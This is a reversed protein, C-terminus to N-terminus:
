PTLFRLTTIENPRLRVPIRGNEDVTATALPEENLNVIEVHRHPERLRVRGRVSKDSINYVRVIVGKGDAAPKVASVVLRPSSVEVLTGAVPLVGEGSALTARLPRAFRHAELFASEWGGEHPVIAYEFVHRGPCQAGPTEVTPGAPGKRTAIDPRSLWGVCRLLTLVLVVGDDGPLAEYEPLGRNALLLGRVGDNVDVFTKQPHTGVPQESWTDDAEPIAIPRTVVGFHQEAHNVDTQVGTPFHARLLHDQAQNDFETRFDIRSVGPYLRVLCRTDCKVRRRSRTQRNKTLSAPLLYTSTIELTSRARGNELVRIRPPAAPRDIVTDPSPAFYNYEDGRDGVDILRNLGRLIRGTAKDRVTISGDDPDASIVFFENEISVAVPKKSEGEPPGRVIRFAKYGHGPVNPAVLGAELTQQRAFPLPPSAPPPSVIQCPHRRGTADIVALPVHGDDNLPWDFTVFDARTGATPNFVVVSQDGQADVQATIGAMMRQTLDEGIQRCTEFRQNVDVYVEDVGSGYIPDHSQNLLLQRWAEDVLGSISSRATPYGTFPGWPLPPEQWRKGLRARLLGAWATLPEVWDVLLDECQQNRQKVWMRASISGPLLHARRSSRMEGRCHPLALGKDEVYAKISQMLQPLNGQVVAAEGLLANATEILAPLDPQPPAHDNGNMVALYPTLALPELSHRISDLRDKLEQPDTPLPWAFGYGMPTYLALVESGDPSQWIFETKTVDDPAGRWIVAFEFGFGRLIAPLHAIHGFADPSYGVPMVGGFEKAIRLGRQLNRVLSEGSPLFEDPAVYWPGVLLRDERVLRAIRRRQDPRVELYDELPATQGDLMFHKYGPGAALMDLLRDMLGVLRTRYLQFPVYWERDWHSHSIVVLQRPSRNM